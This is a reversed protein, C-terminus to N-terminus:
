QVIIAEGRAVKVERIAAPLEFPADLSVGNPQEPTRTYYSVIEQLVGPPISVGAVEAAELQLRGVGNQTKLIGTAQVPLRGTLYGAPDTWGRKRETRVADLDVIARGTVRGNGLIWIYPEVVGVPIEERAHYRLYSNVERESITTSRAAPRQARIMANRNILALKYQLSDADRRTLQIQEAAWAAAAALLAALM